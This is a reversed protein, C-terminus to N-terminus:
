GLMYNLKSSFLQKVASQEVSLFFRCKCTKQIQPTKIKQETNEIARM